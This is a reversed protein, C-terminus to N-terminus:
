NKGYINLSRNSVYPIMGKDRIVKIAEEAKDLDSEDLYDIVIIPLSYSQIKQIQIDLWARDLSTVKKYALDGAGLGYYYSEFAIADICDYLEDILEFGRNLILKAKPYKAHFKQIFAVLVSQYKKRQKDSSCARQYSDLTDFFFNEFGLSLRTEIIEKFFFEQYEPNLIDVVLSGWEENKAIIWEDKINKYEKTNPSIECVSAYAYMKHTYKFFEKEQTDIYDSQVIIYDDKAVKEYDLNQAYYVIASKPKFLTGIASFLNM